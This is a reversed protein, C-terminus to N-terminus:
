ETDVESEDILLPCCDLCNTHDCDTEEMYDRLRCPCCIENERM